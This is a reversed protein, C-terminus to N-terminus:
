CTSWICIHIIVIACINWLIWYKRRYYLLLHMMEHDKHELLHCHYMTM